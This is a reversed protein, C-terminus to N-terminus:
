AAGGEPHVDQDAAPRVLQAGVHGRPPMSMGKTDPDGTM